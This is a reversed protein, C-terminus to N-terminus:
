ECKGEPPTMTSPDYDQVHQSVNWEYGEPDLVRFTRHGYFQDEPENVVTAGAAKAQEFTADCDEVYISVLGQRVGSTRPTGHGMAPHATAVYLVTDADLGLEAHGVGGDPMPFRFREEFGLAEALFEIAAPCDEYVLYPVIRQTGQPLKM